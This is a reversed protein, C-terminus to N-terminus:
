DTHAWAPVHQPQTTDLLGADRAEWLPRVDIPATAQDEPGDVPRIMLPVTIANANAEAALEVGFREQLALARDRWNDREMRMQAAAEEAEGRLQKEQEWAANTDTVDRMLAAFFDDAAAQRDLLHTNEQRLEDVKDVARRRGHGKLSPILNLSV